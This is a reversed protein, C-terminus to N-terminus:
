SRSVKNQTFHRDSFTGFLEEVNYRNPPPLPHTHRPMSQHADQALPLQQPHLIEKPSNM